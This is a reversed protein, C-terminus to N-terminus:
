KHPFNNSLQNNLPSQKIEATKKILKFCCISLIECDMQGNSIETSPCM